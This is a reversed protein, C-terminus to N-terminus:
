LDDGTIKENAYGFTSGFEFSEPDFRPDQGYQLWRTIEPEPNVKDPTIKEPVARLDEFQPNYTDFDRPCVWLGKWPGHPQRRMQSARYVFGCHSCVMLNNGPQYGLGSSPRTSGAGSISWRKPM